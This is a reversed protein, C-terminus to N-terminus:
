EPTLWVSEVLSHKVTLSVDEIVVACLHSGFSEAVTVVAPPVVTLPVTSKVSYSLPSQVPVTSPINESVEAGNVVFLVVTNVELVVTEHFATNVGDSGFATTPDVLPHSTDTRVM